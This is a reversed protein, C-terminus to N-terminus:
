VGSLVNELVDADIHMGSIKELLRASPEDGRDLRLAQKLCNVPEDWKGEWYLKLAEEYLRAIERKRDPLEGRRALLEYVLVEETKGAVTVRDLMRTEFVDRVQLYTSRGIIITTGYQKNLPELRSALNVTDGMVTYQCRHESGMNGAIMLGTNIGIRVHIEHGFLTQLRPRMRALQEVQELAAHCAQAAHDPIAYPVGWEAMIMDGIYKDVYGDRMMIISTMPSLYRNLLISLQDPQLSEAITSFGRIDSFMVTAERGTGTLAAEAPHEELYSLVKNSVM